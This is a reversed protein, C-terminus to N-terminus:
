LKLKNIVFTLVLKIQFVTYALALIIASGQIFGDMERSIIYDFFMGMIVGYIFTLIITGWLGLMNVIKDM